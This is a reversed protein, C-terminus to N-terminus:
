QGQFGERKGGAIPNGPPTMAFGEESGEGDIHYHTKGSSQCWNPPEVLCTAEIQVHRVPPRRSALVTHIHACLQWGGGVETVVVARSGQLYRIPYVAGMTPPM